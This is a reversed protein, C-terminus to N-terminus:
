GYYCTFCFLVRYKSLHPPSQFLAALGFTVGKTSNQSIWKQSVSRLFKEIRREIKKQFVAEGWGMSFNKSGRRIVAAVKLYVLAYHVEFTIM